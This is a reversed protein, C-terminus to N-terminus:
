LLELVSAYKLRDTMEDFESKFFYDMDPSQSLFLLPIYKSWSSFHFEATQWCQQYIESHWKIQYHFVCYRKKKEAM